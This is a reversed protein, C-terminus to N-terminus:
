YVIQELKVYADHPNANDQIYSGVDLVKVGASAIEKANLDNVGGDWSIEARPNLAKIENVKSLMSLDAEGGQYGLSGAFILVHDYFSIVESISDVTTPGLIALGARINHDGLSSVLKHHDVEAEAHVILLNPNILIIADIFEMPNKFILHIDTIVENTIPVLGIDLSKTPALVGDMLDIHIRNAFQKVKNFQVNFEDLSTATITPCIIAM